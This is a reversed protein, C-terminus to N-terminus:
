RRASAWGILYFGLVLVPPLLSPGLALAATGYMVGMAVGFGPAEPPRVRLVLWGLLFLFSALYIPGGMVLRELYENHISRGIIDEPQWFVGAPYRLYLDWARGWIETRENTASGAAASYDGRQLASTVKTGSSELRDVLAGASGSIGAVLAVALLSAAVGLAVPAMRRGLERFGVRSRYGWLMWAVLAFGAAFAATRSGSMVLIILGGAALAARPRPADQLAIALVFAVAGLLGFTNPDVEFGVSRFVEGASPAWSGLASSWGVYWTGLPTSIGAYELGSVIGILASPGVAVGTAVLPATRSTHAMHGLVAAAIWCLPGLSVRLFGDIGSSMRAGIIVHVFLAVGVVALVPALDSAMRRLTARDRVAVFVLGAAAIVVVAILAYHVRYTLFVRTALLTAM